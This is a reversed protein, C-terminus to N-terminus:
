LFQTRYVSDPMNEPRTRLPRSRLLRSPETPSECEPTTTTTPASNDKDEDDDVTKWNAATSGVQFDDFITPSFPTDIGPQYVSDLDVARDEWSFEIDELDSLEYVRYRTSWCQLAIRRENWCNGTPQSNLSSSALSQGFIRKQPLAVFVLSGASTGPLQNYPEWRSGKREFSSFWSWLGFDVTHRRQLSYFQIPNITFSRTTLKLFTQFTFLFTSKYQLHLYFLQYSRSVFIGYLYFSQKKPVLENNVGEAKTTSLKSQPIYKRLLPSLKKKQYDLNTKKRFCYTWGFLSVCLKQHKFPINLVHSCAKCQKCEYSSKNFEEFSM